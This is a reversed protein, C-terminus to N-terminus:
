RRESNETQQILEAIKKRNANRGEIEKRRRENWAHVDDMTGQFWPDFQYVETRM